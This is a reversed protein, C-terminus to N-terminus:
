RSTRGMPAADIPPCRTLESPPAGHWPHKVPFDCKHRPSTGPDTTGGRDVISPVTGLDHDGVALDLLSLIHDFQDMLLTSGGQENSGIHRLFFLHLVQERRDFLLVLAQMDREVVRADGTLNLLVNGLHGQVGPLCTRPVSRVPTKRQM